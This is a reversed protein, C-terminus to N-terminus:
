KPSEGLPDALVLEVYECRYTFEGLVHLNQPPSAVWFRGRPLGREAARPEVSSLATKLSRADRTHTPSGGIWGSAEEGEGGGERMWRISPQLRGGTFRPGAKERVATPEGKRM